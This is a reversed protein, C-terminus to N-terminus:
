TVDTYKSTSIGSAMVVIDYIGVPLYAATFDGSANSFVIRPPSDLDAPMIKIQANSVPAGRADVVTGALAGTEGSQAGGPLAAALVTLLCLIVTLNSRPMIEM